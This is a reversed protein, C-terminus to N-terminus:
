ATDGATGYWKHACEPCMGHSFDAHTHERVYTEVAQWAGSGDRVRKCASCIPLIGRLTRVEALAAQLERVLRQQELLLKRREVAHQVARRVARDTLGGKVLYDDAGDRIAAVTLADDDGGSVVLVPVDVARQRVARYTELGKSDPLGLDTLVVDFGGTALRDLADALRESSEVVHHDGNANLLAALLRAFPADDEIVLIKM